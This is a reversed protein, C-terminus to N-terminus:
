RSRGSLKKEKLMVFAAILLVPILIFRLYKENLLLQLSTGFYSGGLALVVSPIALQWNIYGNKLFRAASVSTGILSSLKNTGLALHTPFGAILYAPISILGGGGGIADILSAMFVGICIVVVSWISYGFVM